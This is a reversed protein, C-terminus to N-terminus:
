VLSRASLRPNARSGAPVSGDTLLGAAEAASCRAIFNRSSHFHPFPYFTEVALAVFRRHIFVSLRTLGRQRRSRVETLQRLHPVEPAEDHRLGMVSRTRNGRHMDVLSGTEDDDELALIHFFVSRLDEVTRRSPYQETTRSLLMAVANTGSTRVAHHKLHSRRPLFSGDLYRHRYRRPCSLYQSIQTYSYTM